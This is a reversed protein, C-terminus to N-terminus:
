TRLTHIDNKNVGYNYKRFSARFILALSDITVTVNIPPETGGSAQLKVAKVSEASKMKQWYTVGTDSVVSINSSSM